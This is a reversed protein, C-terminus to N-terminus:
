NKRYQFITSCSFILIAIFIYYPFWILGQVIGNQYLIYIIIMAPLSIGFTIGGAKSMDYEQKEDLIETSKRIKMVILWYTLILFYPMVVLEWIHLEIIYQPYIFTISLGAVGCLIGILQTIIFVKDNMQFGSRLKSKPILWYSLGALIIIVLLIIKILKEVNHEM